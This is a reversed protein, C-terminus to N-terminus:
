NSCTGVTKVRHTATNTLVLGRAHAVVGVTGHTVVV